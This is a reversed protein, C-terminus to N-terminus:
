EWRGRGARAWYLVATRLDDPDFPKHFVASAGLGIAEDGVLDAYATMVIVPIGGVDMMGLVDVGTLGPMRHDTVVVCPATDGGRRRKLCALLEAGDRVAEVEFGDAALLGGVLERLDYDDEAVVVLGRGVGPSRM